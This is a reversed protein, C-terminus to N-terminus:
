DVMYVGNGEGLKEWRLGCGWLWVWGRGGHVWSVNDTGSSRAAGREDVEQPLSSNRLGNVVSWASVGSGRGLLQGGGKGFVALIGLLVAWQASVVLRRAPVGSDLGLGALDKVAVLQRLPEPSRGEGLLLDLDDLTATSCCECLCLGVGLIRSALNNNDRYHLRLFRAPPSVVTRNHKIFREPRFLNLATLCRYEV